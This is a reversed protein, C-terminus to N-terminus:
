YSIDVCGEFKRIYEYDGLKNGKPNGKDLTKFDFSFSEIMMSDVENFWSSCVKVKQSLIEFVWILWLISFNM